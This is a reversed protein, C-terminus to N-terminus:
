TTAISGFKALHTGAHASCRAHESQGTEGVILHTVRSGDDTFAFVACKPTYLRRGTVELGGDDLKVCLVWSEEANKRFVPKDVGYVVCGVLLYM